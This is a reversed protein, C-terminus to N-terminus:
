PVSGFLQSVSPSPRPSPSSTAFRCWGWRDTRGASRRRTPRCSGRVQRAAQRADAAHCVPDEGSRDVEVRGAPRGRGGTRATAASGPNTSVSRAVPTAARRPRAEGGAGHRHAVAEALHTREAVVGPAEGDVALRDREHRGAAAARRRRSAGRASRDGPGPLGACTARALRMRTSPTWSASSTSFTQPSSRRLSPTTTSRRSPASWRSPASRENRGPGSRRSPTSSSWRTSPDLSHACRRPRRVGLRARRRGGRRRCRAPPSARRADADVGPGVDRQPVTSPRRRRRARSPRGGRREPPSGRRATLAPGVELRGQDVGDLAQDVEDRSAQRRRGPAPSPLLTADGLRRRLERELGAIPYLNQPARPDKHPESAFRPLSPRSRDALAAAEAVTLDAAGRLARDGAWRTRGSARAAAPVVVVPHVPRRRVFLPTREGPTAARGISRSCWPRGTAVRAHTKIYGVAGRRPTPAPAAARRGRGPRRRQGRGPRTTGVEGRPRGDPGAPALSLAEPDDGVRGRAVPLRRPPHAITTPATPRPLVRGARVEADVVQPARRRLAGRRRRLQRLHGPAISATPRRHDM